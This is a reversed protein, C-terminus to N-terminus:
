PAMRLARSLRLLLLGDVPVCVRAGQKVITSKVVAGHLAYQRHLSTVSVASIQMPVADAGEPARELDSIMLVVRAGTDLAALGPSGLPRTITATFQDGLRVSDVCERSGSRLEIETGAPIAAAGGTTDSVTAAIAGEVAKPGLRSAFDQLANLEDGEIAFDINGFRSKVSNSASTMQVLTGTPIVSRHADEVITIRLGERLLKRAREPLRDLSFRGTDTLSALTLPSEGKKRAMDIVSAIAALWRRGQFWIGTDDVTVLQNSRTMVSALSTRWMPAGGATADTSPAVLFTLMPGPAGAGVTAAQDPVAVAAAMEPQHKAVVLRLIRSTMLISDPTANPAAGNYMAEFTLQVIPKILISLPAGSSIGVALRTRDSMPDYQQVVRWPNRYVGRAPFRLEGAGPAQASAVSRVAVILTLLLAGSSFGRVCNRM